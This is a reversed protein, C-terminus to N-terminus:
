ENKPLIRAGPLNPQRALRYRRRTLLVGGVLDLVIATVVMLGGFTHGAVLYQFGLIELGALALGRGWARNLFHAAGFTAILSCAVSAILKKRRVTSAMEGDIWLAAGGDGPEGGEGAAGKEDEGEEEDELGESNRLEEILATAEEAEEEDVLVRSSFGTAATTMSASSAGPIIANIGRAALVAKIMMAESPSHCSAVSVTRSEQKAM